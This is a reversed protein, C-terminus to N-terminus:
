SSLEGIWEAALELGPKTLRVKRAAGSGQFQLVNDLSLVHKAFNSVDFANYEQCAQRLLSVPTWQEAGDFQRALVVLLSIRRAAESKRSGFRSAAVGLLLQGEEEYFVASIREVSVGLKSALLALRGGAAAQEAPPAAVAPAAGAVASVPATTSRLAVALAGEFAPGLLEKPLQAALATAYASRLLEVGGAIQEDETGLDRDM